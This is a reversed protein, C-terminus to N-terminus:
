LCGVIAFPSLEECANAFLPAVVDSLSLRFLLSGLPKRLTGMFAGPLLPLALAVLPIAFPGSAVAKSDVGGAVRCRWRLTKRGCVWRTGGDARADSEMWWRAKDDM